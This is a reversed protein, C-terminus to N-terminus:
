EAVGLIERFARLVTEIEEKSLGYTSLKFNRTLGPKIGHIRRKKLEKYLFFRGEKSKKSLEYLNEAHFFMLDHNHPKEGLQIIGIEEMKASFYRAKEVEENWRKVRERVAPFSAIMTIISAGR